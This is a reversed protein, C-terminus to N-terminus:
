EQIVEKLKFYIKEMFNTFEIKGIEYEDRFIEPDNSYADCCNYIQLILTAFDLSNKNPSLLIQNSELVDKIKQICEYRERFAVIFNLIDIKKEIFQTLLELYQFRIEWNLQDMLIISYLPLKSKLEDNLFIEKQNLMELHLKKDYDLLASRQMKEWDSIM